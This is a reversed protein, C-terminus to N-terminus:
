HGLYKMIALFCSCAAFIFMYTTMMSAHSNKSLMTLDNIKANLESSIEKIRYFAYLDDWTATLDEVRNLNLPMSYFYLNKFKVVENNIRNVANDPGVPLVPIWRGVHRSVWSCFSHEKFLTKYSIEDLLMKFKYTYSMALIYIIMVRCCVPEAVSPDKRGRIEKNSLKVYKCKGNPNIICADWLAQKKKEEPVDKGLSVIEKKIVVSRNDNWGNRRAEKRRARDRAPAISLAPRSRIEFSEQITGDMLLKMKRRVTFRSDFLEILLFDWTGFLNEREDKKGRDFAEKGSYEVGRRFVRIKYSDAIEPRLFRIPFVKKEKSNEVKEWNGNLFWMDHLRNEHLPEGLIRRFSALSQQASKRAKSLRLVKNHLWRTGDCLNWCSRPKSWLVDMEAFFARELEHYFSEYRSYQDAASGTCSGQTTMEEQAVETKTSSTKEHDQM